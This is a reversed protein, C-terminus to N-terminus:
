TERAKVRGLLPIRHITVDRGVFEHELLFLSLIDSLLQSHRSPQSTTVSSINPNSPLITDGGDNEYFAGPIESIQRQSTHPLEDGAAAQSSHIRAGDTVPYYTTGGPHESPRKPLVKPWFTEDDEDSFGARPSPFIGSYCAQRLIYTPRPWRLPYERLLKKSPPSCRGM